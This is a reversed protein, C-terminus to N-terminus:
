GGSPPPAGSSLWYWRCQRRPNGPAPSESRLAEPAAPPPPQGPQASSFFAFSQTLGPQDLTDPNIWRTRSAKGLKDVQAQVAAKKRDRGPGQNGHFRCGTRNQWGAARDAPWVTQGPVLPQCDRVSLDKQRGATSQNEALRTGAVEHQLGHGHCPHRHHRLKDLDAAKLDAITVHHYEIGRNAYAEKFYGLYPTANDNMEDYVHLVGRSLPDAGLSLAALITCALIFMRKM